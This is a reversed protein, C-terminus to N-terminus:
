KTIGTLFTMWGSRRKLKGHRSRPRCPFCNIRLWHLELMSCGAGWQAESMAKLRETLVPKSPICDFCRLVMNLCEFFPDNKTSGALMSNRTRHNHRLLLKCQPPCRNQPLPKWRTMTDRRRICCSCSSKHKALDRDLAELDIVWAYNSSPGVHKETCRKGTSAEYQAIEPLVPLTLLFGSVPFHQPSTCCMSKRRSAHHLFTTHDNTIHHLPVTRWFFNYEM